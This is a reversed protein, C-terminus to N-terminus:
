CSIVSEILRGDTDILALSARARCAAAVQALEDDRRRLDEPSAAGVYDGPRSRAADLTQARNLWYSSTAEALADQLVRRGFTSVHEAIQQEIRRTAATSSDDPRPVIPSAISAAASIGHARARAAPRM